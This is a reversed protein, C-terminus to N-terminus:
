LLLLRNVEVLYYSEDIKYLGCVNTRPWQHITPLPSFRVRDESLLVFSWEFQRTDGHLDGSNRGYMYVGKLVRSHKKWEYSIRLIESDMGYSMDTQSTDNPCKHQQNSLRCMPCQPKSSFGLHIRPDRIWSWSRIRGIIAIAWSDM